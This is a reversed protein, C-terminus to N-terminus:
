GVNVVVGEIKEGEFPEGCMSCYKPVDEPDIGHGYTFDECASCKYEQMDGLTFPIAFSTEYYAM